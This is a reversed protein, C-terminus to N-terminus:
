GIFYRFLISVSLGYGAPNVSRLFSSVDIGITQLFIHNAWFLPPLKVGRSVTMGTLMGEGVKVVEYKFGPKFEM